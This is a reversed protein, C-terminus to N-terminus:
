NVIIGSIINNNLPLIYFNGFVSLLLAYLDNEIQVGQKRTANAKKTQKKDKGNKGWNFPQQVMEHVM